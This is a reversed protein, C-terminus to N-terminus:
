DIKQDNTELDNKSPRYILWSSIDDRHDCVSTTFTYDGMVIGNPDLYGCRSYRNNFTDVWVEHRIKRECCWAYVFFDGNTESTNKRTFLVGIPRESSM